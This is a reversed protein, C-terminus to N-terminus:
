WFFFLFHYTPIFIMSSSLDKLFLPKRGFFHYLYTHIDYVQKFGEFLPTEKWFLHYTPIFIMSRSLDKM